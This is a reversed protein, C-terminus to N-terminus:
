VLGSRRAAAAAGTGAARAAPVRTERERDLRCRCRCEADLLHGHIGGPGVAARASPHRALGRRRALRRPAATAAGCARGGPAGGRASVREVRCRARVLRRREISVRQRGGHRHLPNSQM